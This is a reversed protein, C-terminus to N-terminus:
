ISCDQVAKWPLLCCGVWLLHVLTCFLGSLLFHLAIELFFSVCGLIYNLFAAVLLGAGIQRLEPKLRSRGSAQHTWVIELRQLSWNTCFSLSKMQLSKFQPVERLVPEQAPSWPCKLVARSGGASFQFGVSPSVASSSGASPPIQGCLSHLTQYMMWAEPRTAACDGPVSIKGFVWPQTVWLSLYQVWPPKVTVISEGNVAMSLFHNGRRKTM